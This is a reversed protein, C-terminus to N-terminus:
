KPFRSHEEQFQRKALSRAWRRLHDTGIFGIFGGIGASYRESIGYATAATVVSFTMLACLLGELLVRLWRRERGDYIVRLLGIVASLLAAMVASMTEPLWRFLLEWLQPDKEPM